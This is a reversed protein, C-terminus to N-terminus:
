LPLPLLPQPFEVKLLTDHAIKLIGNRVPCTPKNKELCALSLEEFFEIRTSSFITLTIASFISNKWL